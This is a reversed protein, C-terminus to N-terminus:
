AAREDSMPAPREVSVNVRPEAATQQLNKELTKVSRRLEPLRRQIAMIQMQERQTTAPSGLYIQHGPLDEMVGSQAGVIAGDGLAIHDKLGVQGALVVHDGTRCSGAIGVQSCILNHRGIQCNHGIMVQNDIKTGTGIRTSGYTGRDITVCAGLEVDDEVVVHGLQATRHHQGGNFQYGFGYAGLVAGAHITVRRGLRTREYLTVNPFLTCDDGIESHDMIVVGPMLRCRAGIRAHPGIVVGPSVQCDPGITASGDITALSTPTRGATGRRPLFYEVIQAFAARPDSVILKACAIAPDDESVVLAALQRLDAATPLAAGDLLSIVGPRVEYLPAAGSVRISGDGSLQGDVLRALTDL